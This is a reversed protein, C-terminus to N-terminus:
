LVFLRNSEYTSALHRSARDLAMVLAIVGDIRDTSKAKDPKLNGAADQKIAVNNVMWRMVPNKGHRLRRELVLRELEKTPASLSAFGQRIQVMLFGDAELDLALHTANWPDYAIERLMPYEQALINLDRRIYAYDVVNGPTATVHGAPGSWAEYPVRDIRTREALKAEPVWFHYLTQYDGDEREPPFVLALASIDTTTSLDLGAYVARNRLKTADVIGASADWREIPIWRADQTTWQSLLLRRFRNELAPIQQAQRCETEYHELSVSVGLSPNAIAWVKPDKWDDTEKAAYIVPYFTRETIVGEIIQRAYEHLEWCVSERDYGATTIALKLPQERAGVSTTLVDWLERGPAAHLEDYIVTSANFGHAGGADAPIARLVSGQSRGKTVIIRRSSDIIKARASLIPSSRVMEAAIGFVISAQDRDTAAIYVEGGAEGDAFLCKLGIGAALHSKGAKRPVELYATQYQRLGRENVTGFLDRIIKNQWPLLEFRVGAWKGKAHKLHQLFRVADDAKKPDFM